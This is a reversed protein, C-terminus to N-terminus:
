GLIELLPALQKEYRKWSQVSDKYIPRRVQVASATRAPRDTKYFEMCADEWELDCHKLLLRTQEAQDAVMEEYQVNYIFDPLVSHWYKMLDRYFNYYEGLEILDYAYGINKNSFYCKFISLCNDLPNRCCHIIKANPLMLKILGIFRFNSVMKDTIFRAKKSHKRIADIYEIGMREFEAGDCDRLGEALAAGPFRNFFPVIIQPLTVVEGAGYVQQHSALIQEVLTTGSRPMGVIFIPTDDECGAGQYKDFWSSDFVEKQKRFFRGLADISYSQTKRKMTNGALFFDFATEYNRLDEFAKGLGFALYMRQEDSNDPNAYGEEMAKIDNDYDSHKKIHAMQLHSEARDPNIALANRYSAVAEELRGLHTLVNGLNNHSEAYDPKLELARHYAAVAEELKGHNKLAIGLNNQSEAYDPKLELARHYAAVAEELKGQGCLAIGLNNHAEADDPRLALVQRILETAQLADGEQCKIVGLLHLAAVNKPDQSLIKTCLLKAESLRGARYCSVSARLKNDVSGSERVQPIQRGRDKAAARGHRKKM